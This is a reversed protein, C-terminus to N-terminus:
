IIQPTNQKSLRRSLLNEYKSFFFNYHIRILFGITFTSLMEMQIQSLQINV